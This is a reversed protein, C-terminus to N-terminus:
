NNKKNPKIKTEEVADPESIIKRRVPLKSNGPM